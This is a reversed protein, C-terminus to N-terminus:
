FMQGASFYGGIPTADPSWAVDGRLVFSSSTQLRLGGGVGYHLGFGSGDLLPNATTDAWVRGGDFFGVIGFIMSKGFLRFSALESRLEVNAFLKVKGYYRGIPIGRVGNTGGLAYTDDFHALEYFPPDGFLVDGVVRGAFTLRRRWIPIFVRTNGVAEGYRYPIADTGGPSLKVDLTHFSGRHTSAENDRDDWQVGYDFLVVGHPRTSGLLARVEASGTSMDSTLKSDGTTLIWNQSYRAGMRGALHDVLKFHLDISVQPHTRGYEFYSDPKGQQAASSANGLGYYNIARETTFSPRFELRIPHGLFRPLTLKVYVDGYPVTVAGEGAKFTILGASEINWLYPDFGNKLHAWGSFFGGGIGIDTSGGAVPVINFEDHSDGKGDQSSAGSSANAPKDSSNLADTAFVDTSITAGGWAVACALSRCFRASVRKGPAKTGKKV